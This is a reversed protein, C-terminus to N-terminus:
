KGVRVQFLLTVEARTWKNLKQLRNGVEIVQQDNLELLRRAVPPESLAGTGRERLSFMLAEVTTRRAGSVHERHRISASAKCADADRCGKCFSPNICPAAGCMSCATMSGRLRGCVRFHADVVGSWDSGSREAETTWWDRWPITSPATPELPKCPAAATSYFSMTELGSL